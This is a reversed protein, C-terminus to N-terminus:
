DKIEWEYDFDFESIVYLTLELNGSKLILYGDNNFSLNYFWHERTIKKNGGKIQKLAECFQM